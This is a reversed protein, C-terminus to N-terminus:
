VCTQAWQCAHVHECGIPFILRMQAISMRLHHMRAFAFKAAQAAGPPCPGFADNGVELTTRWPNRAFDGPFPSEFGDLEGAMAAVVMHLGLLARVWALLREDEQDESLDHFRAINNRVQMPAYACGTGM